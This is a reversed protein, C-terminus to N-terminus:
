KTFYRRSMPRFVEIIIYRNEEGCKRVEWRAKRPSMLKHEQWPVKYNIVMSAACKRALCSADKRGSTRM